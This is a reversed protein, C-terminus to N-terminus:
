RAPSVAATQQLRQHLRQATVLRQQFEPAEKYGIFKDLLDADPSLVVTCPLSSVELIEAVRKDRDLDLHVAVYRENIYKVLDQDALTERELKKCFGCWDAGYVILIPKGDKAAVDHAAKLNPQWKIEAKRSFLGQAMASEASALLLLGAVLTAIRRGTM